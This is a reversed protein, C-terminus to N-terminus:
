TLYDRATRNGYPGYPRGFDSFNELRNGEPFVAKKVRRGGYFVLRHDPRDPSPYLGPSELDHGVGVGTLARGNPERDQLAGAIQAVFLAGL